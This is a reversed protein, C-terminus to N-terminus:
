INLITSNYLTDHVSERSCKNITKKYRKIHNSNEKRGTQVAM